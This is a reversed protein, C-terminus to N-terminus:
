TVGLSLKTYELENTKANNLEGVDCISAPDKIVKIRGIYIEISGHNCSISRDLVVM